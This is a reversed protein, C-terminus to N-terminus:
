TNLLKSKLQERISNAAAKVLIVLNRLNCTIGFARMVPGCFYELGKDEMSIFPPSDITVLFHLYGKLMDELTHAHSLLM